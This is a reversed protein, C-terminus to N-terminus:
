GLMEMELRRSVQRPSSDRWGAVHARRVFPLHPNSNPTAARLGHCVTAAFGRNRHSVWDLGTAMRTEDTGTVGDTPPEM